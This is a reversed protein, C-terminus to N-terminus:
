DPDLRISHITTDTTLCRGDQDLNFQWRHRPCTWLTGDEQWGQALDAGQHPCYRDISFRTGAAEITCRKQKDEIEILKKCFWNLDEPEMLLFGQILTQYVDPQRNLRMRFTLAFQEWTITRDLVRGVQWSPASIAYYDPEEVTPVIEVSNKAFDVRVMGTSVDKLSFYLCIQIRDRLTFESLKCGLEEKLGELVELPSRAGQAQLAAFHDQYQAAYSHIYNEFHEERFRPGPGEILATTGAQLSDGPQIDLMATPCGSLRQELVGLLKANRPFINVPEFNLHILAPDLFCAPGASPLFVQAGTQRIARAVVEFKSRMKQSSIREYEAKPYEYCTPHWTAGSFQCALVTISGESAVIAPLEDYLKCDNLNLFSHGGSKYLIGSDRNL